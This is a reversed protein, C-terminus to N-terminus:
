NKLEVPTVRTDIGWGQAPLWMMFGFIMLIFAVLVLERPNENKWNWQSFGLDEIFPKKM